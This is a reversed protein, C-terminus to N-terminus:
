KFMPSKPTSIGFTKDFGLSAAQGLTNSLLKNENKKVKPKQVTVKSMLTEINDM